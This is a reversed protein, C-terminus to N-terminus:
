HHHCSGCHHSGCSGCGGGGVSKSEGTSGRSFAAFRSLARSTHEGRCNECPIPQDAESMRRLVGFRTGCEACTYEYVPM